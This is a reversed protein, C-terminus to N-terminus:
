SSAPNKSPSVECSEFAFDYIGLGNRQPYLQLDHKGFRANMLLEYARAADVTVYSDGAADYRIDRGADARKVPKGDQTVKVRIAGGSEPKMVVVVQIAHYPLRLYGDSGGSVLAEGHTTPRWHGQLYISGDRNARPDDVYNLDAAGSPSSQNAVSSGHWPGVFTENTQPYCVAGPKTYDDQPLLAMVAPLRLSPQSAKLLEQIKAETQQYNGEGTQVDVLRGRQDFLYEKPWADNQYRNWIAQRDDLVVPWVVGLRKVAANVNAMDGEFDFEPTHVGVIALGDTHYRDYWARVYPLTRLCNICTYAWFDVLVVKGRLDAPTLPVSNIWGTGGDFGALMSPAGASAPVTAVGGALLSLILAATSYARGSLRRARIM